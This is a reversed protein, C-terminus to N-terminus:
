RQDEENDRIGAREHWTQKKTNALIACSKRCNQDYPLMLLLTATLLAVMSHIWFIDGPSGREDPVCAIDNRQGACADANWGTNGIKPAGATEPLAIIWHFDGRQAGKAGVCLAEVIPKTRQECAQHSSLGIRRM